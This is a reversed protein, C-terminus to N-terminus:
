GNSIGELKESKAGKPRWVCRGVMEIETKGTTAERKSEMWVDKQSDKFHGNKAHPGVFFNSSQWFM